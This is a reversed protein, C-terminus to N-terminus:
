RGALQDGPQEPRGAEVRLRARLRRMTEPTVSDPLLPVTFRRGQASRFPLVVLWRSLYFDPLLTVAQAAEDAAQRWWTGDARWILMPQRRRERVQRNLSLFLLTMLAIRWVWAVPLWWLMVGAGLYMAGLSLWLARSPRPAVRLPQGKMKKDM